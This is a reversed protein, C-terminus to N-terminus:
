RTWFAELSPSWSAMIRNMFIWCFSLSVRFSIACLTPVTTKPFYRRHLNGYESIGGAARIMPTMVRGLNQLQVILYEDNITSLASLHLHKMVTDFNIGTPLYKDTM